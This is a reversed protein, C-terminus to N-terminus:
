GAFGVFQPVTWHYGMDQATAWHVAESSAAPAVAAAPEDSVAEAQSKRHQSESTQSVQCVPASVPGVMDLKLVITLNLGPEFILPAVELFHYIM